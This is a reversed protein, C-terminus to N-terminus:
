KKEEKSLILALILASLGATSFFGILIGLVGFFRAVVAGYLMAYGYLALIGLYLPVVKKNKNM